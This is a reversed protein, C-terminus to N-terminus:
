SKTLLRYELFRQGSDTVFIHRNEIRVFDEALMAAAAQAVADESAGCREAVQALPVWERHASIERLVEYLRNLNVPPPSQMPPLSQESSAISAALPDHALTAPEVAALAASVAAERTQVDMASDFQGTAKCAQELVIGISAAQGPTLGFGAAESAAIGAVDAISAAKRVALAAALAGARIKEEPPSATAADPIM